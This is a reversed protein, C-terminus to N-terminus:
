FGFVKRRDYIIVAAIVIITFVEATGPIWGSFINLIWYFCVVSLAMNGIIYPHLCIKKMRNIRQLSWWLLLSYVILYIISLIM